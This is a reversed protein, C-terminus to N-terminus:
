VAELTFLQESTVSDSCKDLCQSHESSYKSHNIYSKKKDASETKASDTKARPTEQEVLNKKLHLKGLTVAATESNSSTVRSRHIM